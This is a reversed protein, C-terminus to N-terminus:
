LPGHCERSAILGLVDSTCGCSRFKLQRSASLTPTHYLLEGTGALRRWISMTSTVGSLFIDRNGM